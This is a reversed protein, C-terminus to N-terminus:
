ISYVTAREAIYYVKDNTQESTTMRCFMKDNSQLQRENIIKYVKVDDGSFAPLM